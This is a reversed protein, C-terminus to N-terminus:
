KTIRSFNMIWNMEWTRAGDASYAQEWRATNEDLSTWLFRVFIARGHLREQSYFAGRGDRFTGTMAPDLTGNAANSWNITWRRTDPQYLRLALGRLPTGDPLVANYEELNGDGNWFPDESVAGDFEYWETAGALPARLRRNHVRWRGHLFDFDHAGKDARAVTRASFPEDDPARTFDMIWNTEWAAGGDASFAQEFRCASPGLSEWTIRLLISAGDHDEQSYFEGRGNAFGGLTPVGVRGDARTAWHLSWQQARPDYLHLSVASVHGSPADAEWEELCALGDWVPRVVSTGEFEVWESSRALPRMLRRNRVHWRGYLFDFDHSRTHTDTM